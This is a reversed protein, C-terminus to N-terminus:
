NTRSGPTRWISAPNPTYATQNEPGQALEIILWSSLEDLASDLHVGEAGWRASLNDYTAPVGDGVLSCIVIYASTAYVTLGLNFIQTDM